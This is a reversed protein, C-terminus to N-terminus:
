QGASYLFGRADQMTTAWIGTAAFKHADHDIDEQHKLTVKRGEILLFPRRKEETVVLAWATPNTFLPNVVVNRIRPGAWNDDNDNSQPIRGNRTTQLREALGFLQPPVWLDFPGMFSMPFGTYAPQVMIEQIAQELSAISLPSNTSLINSWFGLSYLHSASAITVKDPSVIQGTTALNMFNSVDIELAQEISEAMMPGREDFVKYRDRELTETTVAFAIGKKRPYVDNFYPTAMDSYTLGTAENVDTAPPMAGLESIRYFAETNKETQVMRPWVKAYSDRYMRVIRDLGDRAYALSISTTRM